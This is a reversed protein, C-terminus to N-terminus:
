SLSERSHIDLHNTWAGLTFNISDFSILERQLQQRQNPHDPIPYAYPHTEDTTLIPIRTTHFYCSSSSWSKCRTTSKLHYSACASHGFIPFPYTKTHVFPLSPCPRVKNDRSWWTRIVKQSHESCTIFLHHLSLLSHYRTGNILLWYLVDGEDGEKKLFDSANGEVEKERLYVCCVCLPCVRRKGKGEGWGGQSRRTWTAPAFLDLNRQVM